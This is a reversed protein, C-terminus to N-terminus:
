ALELEDVKVNDEKWQEYNEIAEGGAKTIETDDTIINKKRADVAHVIMMKSDDKLTVVTGHLEESPQGENTQCINGVKLKLAEFEAVSIKYMM